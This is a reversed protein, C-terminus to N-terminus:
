RRQSIRRFEDNNGILFIKPEKLISTLFHDKKAIKEKFESEPYIIVNIERKLETKVPALLESVKRSSINGIIVLDIDSNINETNRAYSGYIFVISVNDRNGSDLSEKLM